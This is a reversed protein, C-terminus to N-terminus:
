VAHQLALILAADFGALATDLPLNLELYKFIAHNCTYLKENASKQVKLRNQKFFESASKRDHWENKHNLFFEDIVTEQIWGVYQSEPFEDNIAIENNKVRNLFCTDLLVNKM